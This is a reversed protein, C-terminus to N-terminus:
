PTVNVKFGLVIPEDAGTNIYIERLVEGIGAPGHAAPDFTANVVVKERPNVIIGAKTFGGGHGPMGFPGYTKGGIIVKASTCMCSTSVESIKIMKDSKNELVYEHNVLGNKIGINGFDYDTETATLIGSAGGNNITATQPQNNKGNFWILAGIVAAFLILSLTITKISNM